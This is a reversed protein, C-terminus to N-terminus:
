SRRRCGMAVGVSSGVSVHKRLGQEEGPRTTALGCSERPRASLTPVEAPPLEGGAEKQSWAGIQIPLLRTTSSRVVIALEESADRAQGAPWRSRICPDDPQQAEFLASTLPFRLLGATSQGSAHSSRERGFGATINRSRLFDCSALWDVENRAQHYRSFLATSAIRPGQELRSAADITTTNHREAM